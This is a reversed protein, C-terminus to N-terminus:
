FATLAAKSRGAQISSKKPSVRSRGPWDSPISLNLLSLITAAADYVRVPDSKVVGRPIDEGQIIFPIKNNTDIDLLHGFGTGGHDATIIITPIKSSATKATTIIRQVAKDATKVADLYFPSMWMWTHGAADPDPLHLLTVDPLGHTSVYTAFADAVAAGEKATKEFHDVSNPRNLTLLKDKSVFAATHLGQEKALELVTKFKVPGKDPQYDDWTIGHQSPDLGTVMSTHAPLTVSPRITTAHDFSTGNAILSLLTKAKAREIADPRLGDISILIIPNAAQATSLFITVTLGLTTALLHM